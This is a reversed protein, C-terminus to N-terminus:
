WPGGRMGPKAPGEGASPLLSVRANPNQIRSFLNQVVRRPLGVVNDFDGRVKEVFKQQSNQAAYAGAKDHNQRSLRDLQKDSFSRMKVHTVAAGTWIRRGPRLALAVGTYVRHWRGSLAALMRRAHTTSTPKGLIKGQHYVITDAGLILGRSTKKAVAWAKNKALKIVWSRPDVKGKPQPEMYPSPCIRASIGMSKILKKRRPSASALIFPGPRM